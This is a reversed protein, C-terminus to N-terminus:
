SSQRAVDEAGGLRGGTRGIKPQHTTWALRSSARRDEFQLVICSRMPTAKLHTEDDRMGFAVYNLSQDDPWAALTNVTRGIGIWEVVARILVVVIVCLVFGAVLTM